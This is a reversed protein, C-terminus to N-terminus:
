CVAMDSLLKAPITNGLHMSHKHLVADFEQTGPYWFKIQREPFTNGKTKVAYGKM